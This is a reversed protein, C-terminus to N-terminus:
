GRRVILKKGAAINNNSLKNWKKLEAVTIGYKKAIAGLNDGSRVTYVTSASKNSIHQQPQKNGHLAMLSRDANYKYATDSLMETFAMSKNYPLHLSIGGPVFPINNTRLSPNLKRIDELSLGLDTALVSLNYRNDVQVTDTFYVIDQNNDPYINHESAYTMAYAAAIFAPVYGRTEAPLYAQIEWFNKVGGARKIAKNVNGPGCNYSAIVLLWDGYIRYSNQLYKIAAETSKPVDRREDYQSGTKLGYMRGTAPMFQWMGAAGVPSVANPNLASEIVAMYKLEIPMNAKDLAAEFDPFYYKSWTLMRSVLKRRKLTYMDIYRRVYENYDMQIESELISLRYAYVSDAYVPIENEEFGYINLDGQEVTPYLKNTLKITNTDILFLMEENATFRFSRVQAEAYFNSFIM